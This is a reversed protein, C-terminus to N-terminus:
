SIEKRLQRHTHVNVHIHAPFIYAIHILLLCESRLLLLYLIRLVDRPKLVPKEGRGVLCRM